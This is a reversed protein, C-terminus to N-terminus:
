RGRANDVALPSGVAELVAAGSGIAPSVVTTRFPTGM